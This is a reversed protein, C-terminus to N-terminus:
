AVAEPRRVLNELPADLSFQLGEPLFAFRATGDLEHEVSRRILTSGFGETRPKTTAPGGTETWRLAFGEGATEWGVEIRGLTTSLAGYKVANTVLEHVAMGMVMAASANLALPAGQLRVNDHGNGNRFPRMEANIIDALDVSVWGGQGLLGYTTDLAQLRGHFTFQFSELSPAGAATQTAMSMVVALMNKVRHNLEDILMQQTQVRVLSTIELFTILSGAVEGDPDRYLLIRCLYHATRDRRLVRRELPQQTELVRRVDTELMDYDLASVIDNLSRGRDGQILNYIKAVEPTFNRIVFHKDLFITAVSTSEFLHRLDGNASDLEDIKNNLQSNVTQLEENISQIEEKSTELEENSSQLEENLSHLEENSSRVEELASEHEESLAQLEDRAVQMEGDMRAILATSDPEFGDADTAGGPLEMSAAQGQARFVILYPRNPGTGTLPEVILVINGAEGSDPDASGVQQVPQGTAVAARLAARLPLHVGPRAMDFISRSPPGLAPQLFNGLRSSYHLLEGEATVVAYPAAFRELVRQSAQELGRGWDRLGRDSAAAPAPPTGARPGGAPTNRLSTRLPPTPGERRQYIRHDKDFSSFLKEHQAVTESSGLLLFGKRLLSYHFSPIVTAQLDVDMYILLNRCSILDMRSFPPDRVLSHPSFTCLDRIDRNVWYGGEVATFFRALREPSMGELLGATYRGARATSIAAGDIDTGFVQVRPGAKVTDLHERLLIALSYAEEGTACGPVWVRITDSAARGDFLRPIVTDAVAKFTDEDRFFRTVGILLDRFLKQAEDRNAEIRGTYGDLTAEGLVQMRREVRRLFTKDKYQSFDHGVTELLIACIRLRARSTEEAPAEELGPEATRRAFALIHPPMEDVGLAHDVLGTAIASDPMGSHEPVSGDSVQAMTMGGALKIAKLGLSGDHGTGSMVIAISRAGQDAAASEFFADIPNFPRSAEPPMPQLQLVGDELSATVGPPVVHVHNPQLRDGASVGSVSMATWRALIEPLMSKSKAALHLVVVFAMESDPPMAGFFNRFADIGGASAGIAVLQVPKTM